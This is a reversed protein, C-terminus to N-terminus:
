IQQRKIEVKLYNKIIECEITNDVQSSEPVILPALFVSRKALMVTLKMERWITIVNLRNM